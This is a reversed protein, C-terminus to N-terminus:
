NMQSELTIKIMNSYIPVESQFNTYTDFEDGKVKNISKLQLDIRVVPNACGPYPCKVPKRGPTAGKVVVRKRLRKKPYDIAGSWTGSFCRLNKGVIPANEYARRM